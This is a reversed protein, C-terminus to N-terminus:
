GAETAVLARYAAVAAHTTHWNRGIKVADLQGTRALLSLYEQSYPTGKAADALTIYRGRVIGYSARAERVARGGSEGMPLAARLYDSLSTDVASGVFNVLSDTGGDDAEALARYYKKRDVHKIVAPPFGDRLLLLNMLLRGTRGNGDAFPHIAEFRHHALAAREVTHLALASDSRIWDCLARIERPVDLPDAPTHRAGGIRVQTTRFKGAEDDDIKALVLAHMQRIVTPTIPTDDQVLAEVFAIADRHNIVEFHERLSKGGITVGHELVIFTERLTLTNGEIANSNYTWEVDLTERLKAVVSGSLPRLADLSAKKGNIRDFLRTEFIM